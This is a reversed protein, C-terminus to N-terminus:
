KQKDFTFEPHPACLSVEKDHGINESQHPNGKQRIDIQVIQAAIEFDTM